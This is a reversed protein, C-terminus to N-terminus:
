VYLTMHAELLISLINWAQPVPWFTQAEAWARLVLGAEVVDFAHEEPPSCHRQTSSVHGMLRALLIKEELTLYGLSDLSIGQSNDASKTAAELAATAAARVEAPLLLAPPLMNMAAAVAGAPFIYIIVM